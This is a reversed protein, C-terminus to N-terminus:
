HINKYLKYSFIFSYLFTTWLAVFIVSSFNRFITCYFKFNYFVLYTTSFNIIKHQEEHFFRRNERDLLWKIDDLMPSLYRQFYEFIANKSIYSGVIKFVFASLSLRTKRTYEHAWFTGFVNASHGAGSFLNKKRCVQTILGWLLSFIIM